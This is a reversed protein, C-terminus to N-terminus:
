LDFQTPITGLPLVSPGEPRAPGTGALRLWAPAHPTFRPSFSWGDHLTRPADAAVPLPRKEGTDM